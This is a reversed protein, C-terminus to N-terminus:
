RIETRPQQASRKRQSPVPTPPTPAPSGGFLRTFFNEGGPYNSRGGFFGGQDPMALAERRIPNERREVASDAVKREEGKLIALLVKDRGYVDDRFELKGDDVFATQYTLHVPLVTPFQIDVENNGFMKRIRDQTYGDRPREIQLLLEAYKVPDQVRMCGHSFARKEMAFLHKQPTDHQYVLFKNPFNFRLRGLANQEGPPQAIHVTGDPNTSVRLGMRALVTPDQQLAPMYERAVISPPVNWTPNVTIYKMEASMIPTPMNPKGDVIRTMWVQKGDNIVRLTFDPLNVVVYTKGLDHPAWRWRELNAIIIDAPRDPQRGNLADVTQQTLMGTAKLDHEQQFRKVAAAVDKDFINGSGGVALRERLQPVREDAAGVKPAPGNAIPTKGTEEKGARIQALKAKLAVYLPHQPEYSALLAGVDAAGAIGTLVEGPPTPKQDYSIDGSVRSWHVRGVQAHRAYALVSTTFRLEAEALAAPESLSAFNPVPYDAPDLGDADVQRLYDIASKARANAKGDAIWLPAFNRGSYFAELAAREKKGGILRDFKGNALERLQESVATDADGVTAVAPAAATGSPSAAPPTAATTAPAPVAPTTATSDPAAPSPTAATTAPAAARPPAAKVAPIEDGGTAAVPQQPVPDPAQAAAAPPEPQAPVEAPAPAAALAPPPESMTQDFKPQDSVPTPTSIVASRPVPTTVPEPAAAPQPSTVAAANTAPQVAPEASAAPKPAIAAQPAPAEPAPTIAPKVVTKDVSNASKAPAPEAKPTAASSSGPMAETDVGSKPEALVGGATAASLLLAVATSALFRDFRVGPM